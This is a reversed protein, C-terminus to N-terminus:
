ERQRQDEASALAARIQAVIQDELLEPLPDSPPWIDGIADDPWRPVLHIHLHMVTQTAAVGSSNIVNMGAPEMATRLAHALPLLDRALAEALETSLSWVDPVHEKPILLLHGRTAPALPVIAISDDTERVIDADDEVSAVIRCFPCDNGM